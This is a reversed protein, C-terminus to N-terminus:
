TTFATLRFNSTQGTIEEPHDVTASLMVGDEAGDIRLDALRQGSENFTGIQARLLDCIADGVSGSLFTAIGPGFDTLLAAAEELAPREFDAFPILRTYIM